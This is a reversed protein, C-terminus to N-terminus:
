RGLIFVYKAVAGVENLERRVSGGECRAPLTGRERVSAKEKFRKKKLIHVHKRM